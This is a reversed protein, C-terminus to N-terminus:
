SGGRKCKVGLNAELRAAALDIRWTDFV